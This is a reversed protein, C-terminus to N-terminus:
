WSSKKKGGCLIHTSIEQINGLLTLFTELAPSTNVDAAFPTPRFGQSLSTNLPLLAAPGPMLGTRCTCGGDHSHGARFSWLLAQM